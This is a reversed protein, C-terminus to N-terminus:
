QQQDSESGVKEDAADRGQEVKDSFKGGGAGSAADAAKGLGADTAKEGHDSSLADKAKDSLGM